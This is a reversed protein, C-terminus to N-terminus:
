ITKRTDILAKIKQYRAINEPLFPEIKCAPNYIRWVWNGVRFHGNEPELPNPLKKHQEFYALFEAFKEDWDAYRIKEIEILFKKFSEAQEPKMRRESFATRHHNYWSAMRQVEQRSYKTVAFDKKYQPFQGYTQYFDIVSKIAWDWDIKESNLLSPFDRFLSEIQEKHNPSLKESRLAAKQTRIWSYLWSTKVATTGDKSKIEMPIKGFINLVQRCFDFNEQWRPENRASQGSSEVRLENRASQGASKKELDPESSANQSDGSSESSPSLFSLDPGLKRKM